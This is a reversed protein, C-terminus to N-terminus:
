NGSELMQVKEKMAKFNADEGINSYISMLTKAADINKSDNKMVAELYPIAEKYISQRKAELQEYKKDDAASTGLGNMEDIIAKEQGLIASAMNIQASSYNPDLEIAKAYYKKASEIDGSEASVVGLNYQLEVNNPDKATAEELLEKFKATNGMKYYVNAQTMLLATDNPAQSRAAELAEIAKENNGNSVYILAINKIIEPTNSASNREQPKIHTGAKVSLDRMTKNDFKEVENNEKNLAVYEKVIGTYGIDRLKEYHSLAKTFDKGNVASSAAYYLYSTDQPSVNYAKEFLSSSTKYDKSQYANNGKTLFSNVMGTKLEQAGEVKGNLMGLSEIAMDVDSANGTGNAYLAQGKLLYFMNKQKDDMSSLMSEAQTIAAKAEAFNSKKIAKAATKLEKKQAFSFVGVSLSMAILLHKKM